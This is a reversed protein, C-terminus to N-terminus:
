GAHASGQMISVNQYDIRMKRGHILLIDRSVHLDQVNEGVNACKCRRASSISNDFAASIDAGTM